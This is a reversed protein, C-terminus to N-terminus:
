GQSPDWTTKFVRSLQCNEQTKSATFKIGEEITQAPQDPDVSDAM